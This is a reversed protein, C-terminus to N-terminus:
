LAPAPYDATRTFHTGALTPVYLTVAIRTAAPDAATVHITGSAVISTEEYLCSGNTVQLGAQTTTGYGGYRPGNASPATSCAQLALIGATLLVTTLARM